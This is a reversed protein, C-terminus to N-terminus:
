PQPSDTEACVQWFPYKQNSLASVAPVICSWIEALQGISMFLCVGPKTNWVPQQKNQGCRKYQSLPLEFSRQVRKM